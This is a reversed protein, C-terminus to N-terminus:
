AVTEIPENIPKSIDIKIIVTAWLSFLSCVGNRRWTEVGDVPLRGCRAEM